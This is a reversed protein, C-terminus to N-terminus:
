FPSVPDVWNSRDNIMSDVVAQFEDVPRSGVQPVPGRETFCGTVLLASVAIVFLDADM